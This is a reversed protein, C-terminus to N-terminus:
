AASGREASHRPGQDSALRWKLSEGARLPIFADDGDGIQAPVSCSERELLLTNTNRPLRYFDAGHFSAFAELREIAGVQDFAEAYLEIAAHASYIGACGCASEKAQKPHPASDTGLFFKPDGSSAAALLAQRHEERKLVPLCYHHPRLGGSFLANRNLLLHHATITAAVRSPAQAVFEVAQRTTIHELVVRLRPYRELLPRLEREIFIRERDFFDVAPDTVEGHILLPLEHEAMAALASECRRIDTVGRASNTTAGAPYWKVGHVKGSAKAARIEAAPTGDTLYLTMLPEFSVEPPLAELIREHYGLAQATTVVPPDLNPMVIARGFREATDRVTRSLMAGDRLHVHWDDPRIIKLRQTSVAEPDM